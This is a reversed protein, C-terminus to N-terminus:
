SLLPVYRVVVKVTVSDQLDSHSKEERKEWKIEDHVLPPPNDSINEWTKEQGLSLGWKDVTAKIAAKRRDKSVM